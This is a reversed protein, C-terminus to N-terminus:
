KPRRICPEKGATRLGELPLGVRKTLGSFLCERPLNGCVQIHLFRSFFDRLKLLIRMERSRGRV